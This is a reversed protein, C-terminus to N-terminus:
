EYIYESSETQYNSYQGKWMILCLVAGKARIPVGMRMKIQIPDIDFQPGVAECDINEECVINNTRNM